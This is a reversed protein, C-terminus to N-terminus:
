LDLVAFEQHSHCDTVPVRCRRPVSGQNRFWFLEPGCASSQSCNQAEAKHESTTNAWAWKLM